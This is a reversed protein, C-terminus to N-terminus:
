SGVASRRAAASESVIIPFFRFSEDMERLLDRFKMPKNETAM